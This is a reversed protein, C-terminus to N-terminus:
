PGAESRMLAACRVLSLALADAQDPTLLWAVGSRPPYLGVGLNRTGDESTAVVAIDAACEDSSPAELKSEVDRQQRLSRADEIRHVSM